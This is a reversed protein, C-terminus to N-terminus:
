CEDQYLPTGSNSKHHNPSTLRHAIPRTRHGTLRGRWAMDGEVTRHVYPVDATVAADVPQFDGAAPQEAAVREALQGAGVGFPKVPEPQAGHDVEPGRALDQEAAVVPQGVGDFESVQRDAAAVEPGDVLEDGTAVM